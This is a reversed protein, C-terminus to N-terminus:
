ANSMYETNHSQKQNARKIRKKNKKAWARRQARNMGQMQTYEDATLPIIKDSAEQASIGDLLAEALAKDRDRYLEGTDCNM